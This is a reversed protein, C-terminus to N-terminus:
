LEKEGDIRVEADQDEVGKEPEDQNLQKSEESSSKTDQENKKTLLLKILGDLAVEVDDTRMLEEAVEAPTANVEKLLDEIEEFRPHKDISHYNSALVRFSNPGCYGMHIHMDMRAPRLLAPDLREKYNTTFVIIREEGSTSWLGDIFNLLGSLTVEDKYNSEKSKEEERSQLDISCDIDEIVLLSKNSMGMLLRKLGSNQSVESLDLDYIDFRLYNAMAAILSSKGTGPPGFLLYGRKWARGTKKYYEKRKVFRALDEMVTRKLEPEMALTDFTAPHHLDIPSWNDYENMHLKLRRDKAKIEKALDIIQPLYIEIATDKHKKHFNLEYWRNVSYMSVDHGNRSNSRDEQQSIFRWRFSAGKFVDVLEEGDDLSLTISDKDERKSARLRKMTPSIKTRLYTNAAEYLDNTNLGENEQVVITIEQSFRNLLKDIGNSFLNRLEYPLYDNVVTRVLMASAAISAATTLYNKTTELSKKQSDM